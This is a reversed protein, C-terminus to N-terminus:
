YLWLAVRRWVAHRTPLLQGCCSISGKYLLSYKPPIVLPFMQWWDVNSPLFPTVSKPHANNSIFSVDAAKRPHLCTLWVGTIRPDREISLMALANLIYISFYILGTWALPRRHCVEKGEGSMCLWSATIPWFEANVRETFECTSITPSWTVM